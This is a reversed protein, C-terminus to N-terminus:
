IDEQGKSISMLLPLCTIFHRMDLCSNRYHGYLYCNKCLVGSLDEPPSRPATFSAPAQSNLVAPFAVANSSIAPTSSQLFSKKVNYFNKQVIRFVDKQTLTTDLTNVSDLVKAVEEPLNSKLITVIASIPYPQNNKEFIIFAGFAKEILSPVQPITVPRLAQITATAEELDILASSETFMSALTRWLMVPSRSSTEVQAQITPELLYYLETAACIAEQLHAEVDGNAPPSLDETLLSNDVNFFFRRYRSVTLHNIATTRWSTYCSSFGLLDHNFPRLSQNFQNNM